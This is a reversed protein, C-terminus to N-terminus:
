DEDGTQEERVPVQWPAKSMPPRISRVTVRRRSRTAPGLQVDLGVIASALPAIYELERTLARASEPWDLRLQLRGGEVAPQQEQVVAEAVRVAELRELEKLLMKVTGEWSAEEGLLRRLPRMIPSLEYVAQELASLHYTLRESLGAPIGLMWELVLTFVGEMLEDLTDYTSALDLSGWEELIDIKVVEDHASPLPSLVHAGTEPVFNYMGLRTEWNSANPRGPDPPLVLLGLRGHPMAKLLDHTMQERRLVGPGTRKDKRGLLREVQALINQDM